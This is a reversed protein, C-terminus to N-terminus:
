APQGRVNPTVALPPFCAFTQTQSYVANTAVDIGINSLHQNLVPVWVALKRQPFCLRLLKAAGAPSLTYAPLGFAKDLKLAQVPTQLAQFVDLSKRLQVQDFLMATASASGLADVCLVSDFNWGWLVMDWGRALGAIVGKSRVAFDHRFLADDEAITLPETGAAAETWLHWHSMAVGYGHANYTAAVEPLFLGSSDIDDATLASGDVADYFSSAVHANRRLFESRRESHRTLSIVRIPRM